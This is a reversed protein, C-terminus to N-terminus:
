SVVLAARIFATQTTLLPKLKHGEIGHRFATGEMMELILHATESTDPMQRMQGEQVGREILGSLAAIMANRSDTFLNAIDTQRIAESTIELSLILTVPDSLHRTYAKAFADLVVPAPDDRQLMELFPAIDAREIEAIEALMDTKSSFHNYLNGTSVGARAAIDRMGTQHYGNEVFGMVAAELIQRRRKANAQDRKTPPQM